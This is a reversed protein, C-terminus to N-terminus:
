REGFRLQHQNNVSERLVEREREREERQISKIQCRADCVPMLRYVSNWM